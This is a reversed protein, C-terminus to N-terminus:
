INISKSQESLEVLQTFSLGNKVLIACGKNEQKKTDQYTAMNIINSKKFTQTEQLCILGQNREFIYQNLSFLNKDSFGCINVSFINGGRSVKERLTSEYHM